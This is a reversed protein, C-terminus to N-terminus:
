KTVELVMVNVVKHIVQEHVRASHFMVQGMKLLDKVTQLLSNEGQVPILHLKYLRLNFEQAM